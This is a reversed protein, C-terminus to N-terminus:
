PSYKLLSESQQMQSVHTLFSSDQKMFLRWRSVQLQQKERLLWDRRTVSVRLSDQAAAELTKPDMRLRAQPDDGGARLVCVCVCVYIYLCLYSHGSIKLDVHINICLLRVFHSGAARMRLLTMPLLDRSYTNTQIIIQQPKLPQRSYEQRSFGMSPPAQHAATWPTM